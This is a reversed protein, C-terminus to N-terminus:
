CTTSSPGESVRLPERLSVRRRPQKMIAAADTAVLDATLALTTISGTPTQTSVAM